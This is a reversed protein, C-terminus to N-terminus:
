GSVDGQRQKGKSLLAKLEDLQHKSPNSRPPRHRKRDGSDSSAKHRALVQDVTEDTYGAAAAMVERYEGPSSMASRDSLLHAWVM